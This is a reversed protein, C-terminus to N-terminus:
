RPSTLYAYSRYELIRVALLFYETGALPAVFGFEPMFTGVGPGPPACTHMQM